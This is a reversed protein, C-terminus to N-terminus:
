DPKSASGRLAELEDLLRMVVTLAVTNLGLHDRLRRIRRLRALDEEGFLLADEAVQAPRVLGVQVYRRVSVPGLGVLRAAVDLRYFATSDAQRTM